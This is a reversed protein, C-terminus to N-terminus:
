RMAQFVLAASNMCYRLGTPEPGDPFVHGLHADCRRCLVEDRAEGLSGDVGTYVNEKAIVDYFSPWGTGSDFKTRSHFLATNCAVCRYIGAEYHKNYKGTFALETGKRRTVSFALPTLREAWAEDPLVVKSVAAAGAPEGDEGFEVITM